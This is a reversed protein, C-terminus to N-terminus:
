KLLGSRCDSASIRNESAIRRVADEITRVCHGVQTRAASESVLFNGALGAAYGAEVDRASDGILWSAGLPIGWDSAAQQLMGPAPKRCGCSTRYASVAAGELHPCYYIADIKLGATALAAALTGHIELLHEESLFGRAVGSQNTAIVLYYADQLAQLSGVGPLLEIQSARRLYHVDRILIGDRDLFVAPRIGPSAAGGLRSGRPIHLGPRPPNLSAAAAVRCEQMM